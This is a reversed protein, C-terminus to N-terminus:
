IIGKRFPAILASVGMPLESGVNGIAQRNEFWHGILLLAAQKIAKPITDGGAIYDITIISGPAPVPWIKNFKPEVWSGCAATLLQWNTASVQQNVGLNDYYNISVVSQVPPVPLVMKRGFCRFQQRWTQTILARGLIGSYGDFYSTVSDILGDILTDEDASDVRLHVKVDERTLIATNPEVIRTPQLM